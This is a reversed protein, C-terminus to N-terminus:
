RYAAHTGEWPSIIAELLAPVGAPRVRLLSLAAALQRERAPAALYALPSRGVVRALLCALLHRQCRDSFAADGAWPVEHAYAQWWAIAGQRLAPRHAPLHNAKAVLHTLLFGVDFAPDGWHIVEHDLLILQGHRVLLNKPSFDGHVLALRLARTQASLQQLFAATEPLQSATAAYYPELRLSEFFSTDAFESALTAAQAASRAHLQGLLRGAQPLLAPEIHGAMLDDRWCTHPPPVAAMGLLHETHDEFRFAPIAGPLLRELARIGAAERHIRLPSATWTGAVRLQSLAQKVVLDGEPSGPREVLVTRNSVGGELVRTRITRAGATLDHAQLYALLEAPREIDM